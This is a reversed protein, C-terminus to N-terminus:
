NQRLVTHAAGSSIGIEVRRNRPERRGDPTAVLPRNEGYGVVRLSSKPMGAREFATAVTDARQRSLHDNHARAGARDAHGAIRVVAAGLKRATAIARDIVDRAARDLTASDFGFLVRFRPTAPVTAAAKVVSAPRLLGRKDNSAADRPAGEIKALAAQFGDRCAAIDHPQFNEEQEQMWCDFRLQATAAARPRRSRGGGDLASVLRARARSLAAIKDKPLTRAALKEPAVAQGRGARVARSAFVRTDVFDNEDMEARALKLYGAHLAKDFAGGTPKLSAAEDYQLSCGGLMAAFLSTASLITLRTM